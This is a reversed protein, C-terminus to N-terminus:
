AALTRTLLGVIGFLTGALWVVTMVDHFMPQFACVDIETLFPAFAPVAITSCQSPLQFTFTWEVDAVPPNEIIARLPAAADTPDGWPDPPPPPPTGGEDIKCPPTGPLGCTKFEPPAVNTPPQVGPPPDAGPVPPPTVGPPYTRDRDQWDYGPAGGPQYTIPHDRDVTSGDPRTERGAPVSAPGSVVPDPHEIGVARQDMDAVIAPFRGATRNGKTSVIDEFQTESKPTYIATPCLGDVGPTPIFELGNVTISRCRFQDGTQRFATV